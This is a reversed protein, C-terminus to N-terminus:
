SLGSRGAGSSRSRGASPRRRGGARQRRIHGRRVAAEPAPARYATLPRPSRRRHHEGADPEILAAAVRLLTSKGSGNEGVLGACEGASVIFSVNTLVRRQGFSVSIGDLRLHTPSSRLAPM